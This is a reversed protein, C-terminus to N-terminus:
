PTGDRYRTLVDEILQPIEDLTMGEYLTKEFDVYGEPRLNVHVDYNSGRIRRATVSIAAVPRPFLEAELVFVGKTSPAGPLFRNPPLGSGRGPTCTGIDRM